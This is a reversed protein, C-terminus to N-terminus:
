SKRPSEANATPNNIRIDLLEDQLSYRIYPVEVDEGNRDEVCVELVIARVHSPIPKKSVSEIVESVKM